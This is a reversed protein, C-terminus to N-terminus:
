PIKCGNNTLAAEINDITAGPSFAIDLIDKARDAIFSYNYTKSYGSYHSSGYGSWSGRGFSDNYIGSYSSTSSGHHTTVSYNTYSQILGLLVTTAIAKGQRQRVSAYQKILDACIFNKTPLFDYALAKDQSVVALRYVGKSYSKLIEFKPVFEYQWLYGAEGVLFFKYVGKEINKYMGYQKDPSYYLEDWNDNASTPMSAEKVLSLEKNADSYAISVGNSIIEAEVAIKLEVANSGDIDSKKIVKAIYTSGGYLVDWDRHTDRPLVGETLDIEKNKEIYKITEGYDIINAQFETDSIMSVEKRDIFTRKEKATYNVIQGKNKYAAHDTVTNDYISPTVICGSIFISSLVWSTKIINM